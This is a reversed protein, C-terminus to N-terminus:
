FPVSSCTEFIGDPEFYAPWLREFAVRDADVGVLQYCYMTEPEINRDVVVHTFDEDYMRTLPEGTVRTLETDGCDGLKQRFIDFGVLEPLGDRDKV